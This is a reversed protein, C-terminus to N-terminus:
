TEKIVGIKTSYKMYKAVKNKKNEISQEDVKFYDIVENEQLLEVIAILDFFEQAIRQENNLKQGPGIEKTTFRLAKSATQSLEACEEALLTLLYENKTM